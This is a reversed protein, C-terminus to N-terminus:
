LLLTKKETVLIIRKDQFYANQFYKLITCFVNKVFEFSLISFQYTIGYLNSIM